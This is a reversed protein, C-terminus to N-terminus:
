PERVLDVTIPPVHSPENTAPMGESYFRIKTFSPDHPPLNDRVIIYFTRREYEAEM